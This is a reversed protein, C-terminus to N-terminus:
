AGLLEEVFARWEAEEPTMPRRNEEATKEIHCSRCLTQLNDMDFPDRGPEDELRIVHDCEMRGARGCSQCRYRDRSFVRKRTVEWRRQDLRAHRLSM